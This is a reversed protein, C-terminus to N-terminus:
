LYFTMFIDFVTSILTKEEIKAQHLFSGSGLPGFVEPDPDSVSIEFSCNPPVFCSNGSM